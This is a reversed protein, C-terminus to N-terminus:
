IRRRVCREGVGIGGLLDGFRVDQGRQTSDFNRLGRWNIRM